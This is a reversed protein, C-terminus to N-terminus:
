AARHHRRRERRAHHRHVRRRHRREVRGEHRESPAAAPAPSAPAANQGWGAISLMAATAVAFIFKKM